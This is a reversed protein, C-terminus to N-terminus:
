SIFSCEIIKQTDESQKVFELIKQTTIDRNTANQVLVRREQSLRLYMGVLPHPDNDQSLIAQLRKILNGEELDPYREVM